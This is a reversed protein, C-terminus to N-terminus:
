MTEKSHKGQDYLEYFDLQDLEATNKAIEVFHPSRRTSALGPETTDTPDPDRREEPRRYVLVSSVM